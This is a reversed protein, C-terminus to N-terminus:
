LAGHRVREPVHPEDSLHEFLIPKSGIFVMIHVVTREGHGDDSAHVYHYTRNAESIVEGLEVRLMRKLVAQYPDFQDTEDRNHTSHKHEAAMVPRAPKREDPDSGVHDQAGEVRQGLQCNVNQKACDQSIKQEARCRAAVKPSASCLRCLRSHGAAPLM